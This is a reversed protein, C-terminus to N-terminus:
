GLVAYVRPVELWSRLKVETEIVNGKGTETIGVKKGPHEIGCNSLVEVEDDDGPLRGTQMYTEMM